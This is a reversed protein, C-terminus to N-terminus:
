GNALERERRHHGEIVFRFNHALERALMSPYRDLFERAADRAVQPYEDPHELVWEADTRNDLRAKWDFEM